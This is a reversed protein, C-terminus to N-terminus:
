NFFSTSKDILVNHVYASFSGSDHIIFKQKDEIKANVLTNNYRTIVAAEEYHNFTTNPLYAKLVNEISKDGLNVSTINIKKSSLNNKLLELFNRETGKWGIILIEKVKQINNILYNEHAEPLIFEDKEKLPILLQPFFYDKQSGIGNQMEFSRPAEIIRYDPLLDENIKKISTKTRYIYQHISEKPNLTFKYNFKKFWNCSGHPKIIKINKNIYESIDLQRDKGYFIKSYALEILLDYNFTVFLVDENNQVSYEYAKQLLVDYNNLGTKNHYLSIAFMLDSICYNLNVFAAMLDDARNNEIIDWQKEFFDEVDSIGNLQSMFYRGGPYADIIERFSKRSSLLENALPPRWPNEDADDFHEYISDFSAGAGLIVLKM